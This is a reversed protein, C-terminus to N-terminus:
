FTRSVLAEAHSNGNIRGRICLFSARVRFHLEPLVQMILFDRFIIPFDRCITALYGSLNRQEIAETPMRRINNTSSQMLGRLAILITSASSNLREQKFGSSHMSNNLKNSALSTHLSANDKSEIPCLPGCVEKELIALCAATSLLLRLPTTSRVQVLFKSAFWLLFKPSNSLKEVERSTPGRWLWFYWIYMDWVKSLYVLSPQECCICM